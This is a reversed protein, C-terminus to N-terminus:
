AKLKKHPADTAIEDLLQDAEYMAHKANGLWKKVDPIQYQKIEADDLVQTISDLTSELEEVLKNLKGRRFYDA